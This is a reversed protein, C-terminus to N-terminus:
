KEGARGGRLWMPALPQENQAITIDFRTDSDITVIDRMSPPATRIRMRICPQRVRWTWGQTAAPARRRGPITRSGPGLHLGPPPLPPM